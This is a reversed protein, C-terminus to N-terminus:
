KVIRLHRPKVTKLPSCRGNRDITYERGQSDKHSTRYDIHKSDLYSLLEKFKNRNNAFDDAYFCATHFLSIFMNQYGVLVLDADATQQDIPCDMDYGNFLDLTYFYSNDWEEYAKRPPFINLLERPTLKGLFLKIGSLVRAFQEWSRKPAKSDMLMTNRYIAFRTINYCGKMLAWRDGDFSYKAIAPSAMQLHKVALEGATFKRKQKPPIGNILKLM